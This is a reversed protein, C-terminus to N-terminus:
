HGREIDGRGERGEGRKRGEEERRGKKEREEGKRRGKKEREEGKRRGKKEREEGKRGESRAHVMFAITSGQNTITVNAQLTSGAVAFNVTSQLSPM